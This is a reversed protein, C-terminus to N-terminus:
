GCSLCYVFLARRVSFSRFYCGATRQGRNPANPPAASLPPVWRPSPPYRRPLSATSLPTYRISMPGRRWREDGCEEDGRGRFGKGLEGREREGMATAWRRQGNGTGQPEGAQHIRIDFRPISSDVLVGDNGNLREREGLEEGGGDIVVSGSM